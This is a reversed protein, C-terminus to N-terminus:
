VLESVLWALAYVACAMVAKRLFLSGADICEDSSLMEALWCGAYTSLYATLILAYLDNM